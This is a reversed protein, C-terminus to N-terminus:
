FVPQVSLYRGEGQDIKNQLRDGVSVHMCVSLEVFILNTTRGSTLVDTPLIEGSGAAM